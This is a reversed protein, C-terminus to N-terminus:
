FEYTKYCRIGDYHEDVRNFDDFNYSQITMLSQLDNETWAKNRMYVFEDEKIITIVDYYSDENMYVDIAVYRVDSDRDVWVDGIKFEEDSMRM